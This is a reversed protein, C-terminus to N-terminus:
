SSRNSLRIARKITNMQGMHYAAHIAIALLTNVAEEDSKCHHPMPSASAIEHAQQLGEIFRKRLDAWEKPDPDRWDNRWVEMSPPSKKGALKGLWLEQWLVTHALNKLISYPLNDLTVEADAQKLRLQGVPTPIDWGELIQQFLLSVPSNQISSM